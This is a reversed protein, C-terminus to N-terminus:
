DIKENISDLLDGSRTLEAVLALSYANLSGPLSARAAKVLLDLREKLEDCHCEPADNLMAAVRGEREMGSAVEHRLRAIEQDRDAGYEQLRYVTARLDAVEEARDGILTVHVGKSIIATAKDLEIQVRQRAKAEEDRQDRAAIKKKQEDRAADMWGDRDITIRELERSLKVVENNLSIIERTQNNTVTDLKECEARRAVLEICDSAHATGQKEMAQRMTDRERELHQIREWRQKNSNELEGIRAIQWKDQKVMLDITRKQEEGARVASHHGTRANDREVELLAVRERLKEDGQALEDREWELRRIKNEAEQLKQSTECTKKCM